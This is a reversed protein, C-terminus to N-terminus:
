SGAWVSGWMMGWRQHWIFILSSKDSSPVDISTLFFLGYGGCLVRIFVCQKPMPSFSSSVLRPFTWIQTVILLWVLFCFWKMNFSHIEYITVSSLKSSRLCLSTCWPVTWKTKHGKMQNRQVELQNRPKMFPSFCDTNLPPVSNSLAWLRSVSFPILFIRASSWSWCTKEIFLWITFNSAESAMHMRARGCSSLAAM